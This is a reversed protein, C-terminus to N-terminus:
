TWGTVLTRSPLSSAGGAKPPDVPNTAYVAAGLEATGPQPFFTLRIHVFCTKSVGSPKSISDYSEAKVEFM